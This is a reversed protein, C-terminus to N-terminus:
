RRLQVYRGIALVTPVGYGLVVLGPTQPPFQPGTIGFGFLVGWTAGALGVCIVVIRPIAVLVVALMFLYVAAGLWLSSGIPMSLLAVVAFLNGVLCVASGFGYGVVRPVWSRQWASPHTMGATIDHDHTQNHCSECLTRLNSLQNSGNAALPTIHHAHLRVGRRGAHPGSKRGCETCTWDDRRYVAKRRAEWDPPYHGTYASQKNWRPNIEDASGMLGDGYTELVIHVAVIFYESSVISFM